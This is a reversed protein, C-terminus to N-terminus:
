MLRSGRAPTWEARLGVVSPESCFQPPHRVSPAAKDEHPRRERWRPPRALASRAARQPEHHAVSIVPSALRTLRQVRFSSDDRWATDAPGIRGELEALIAICRELVTGDNSVDAYHYIRPEPRTRSAATWNFYGWVSNMPLFRVDAADHVARALAPQDSHLGSSRFREEWRESLPRARVRHFYAMGGWFQPFLHGNLDPGLLHPFESPLSLPRILVDDDDLLRFAPTLYGPVEDGDDRNVVRDFDETLLAWHRPANTILTVAFGPNTSRISRAIDIAMVLYEFGYAVIVVEITSGGPPSVEPSRPLLM